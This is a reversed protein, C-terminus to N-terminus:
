DVRNYVLEGDIWTAQVKVDSLNKSVESWPKDLLCIDAIEGINIKRPSGGADNVPKTYLGLADEPTIAEDEFELPPM